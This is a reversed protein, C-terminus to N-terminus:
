CLGRTKTTVLLKRLEIWKSVDNLGGDADLKENRQYYCRRENTGQSWQTQRHIETKSKLCLHNFHKLLAAYYIVDM